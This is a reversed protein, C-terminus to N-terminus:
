EGGPMQIVTGGVQEGEDDGIERDEPAVEDDEGEERDTAGETDGHEITPTPDQTVTVPAEAEADAKAKEDAKKRAEAQLQGRKADAEAREDLSMTAESREYEKASVQNRELVAQTAAAQEKAVQRREDPSMESPKKNGHARNVADVAQEQELKVKAIKDPPVREGARAATSVLSLLCLLAVHRM